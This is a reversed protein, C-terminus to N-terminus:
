NIYVSCFFAIQFLEFLYKWFGCYPDTLEQSPAPILFSIKLFFHSFLLMKVEFGNFLGIFVNM